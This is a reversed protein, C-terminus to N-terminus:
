EERIWDRVSIAGGSVGIMTCGGRSLGRRISHRRGLKRSTYPRRDMGGGSHCTGRLKLRHYRGGM